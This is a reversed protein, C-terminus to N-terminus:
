DVHATSAVAEEQPTEELDRHTSEERVSEKKPTSTAIQVIWILAYAILLGYSWELFKSGTPVYSFYQSFSMGLLILGVWFWRRDQDSSALMPLIFLSHLYYNAPYFLIPILMMGLLAAQHLEQRRAGVFVALIGLTMGLWLLPQRAELLVSRKEIWNGGRVDGEGHTLITRLGVHNFNPKSAHATIKTSWDHWGDEFGYIATSAAGLLLAAGLAGAAARWLPQHFTFFESLGVSRKHVFRREIFWWIAPAPIALLVLLPFARIMTSWGLLFGGLTWRQTRLACVGLGMLIMWDNRLTSGGWNSGHMPMSNTGFVVLCLFATPLGFTRAAVVLFLVLLIPDLLGTLVLTLRNASAGSFMLSAPMMWVPTANAGHDNLSGIYGDGMTDRFYTMDSKFEEWREPSFRKKVDAIQAVSQGLTTMQYDRLDRIARREIAAFTAPDGDELYALASAWYVGDYGLEDFYKVTPFYVRMDYTHVFTTTRNKNDFFQPHGLNFFCLVGLAAAVGLASTQVRRDTHARLWGLRIVAAAAVLAVQAKLFAVNLHGVPWHGAVQNIAYFSIGCAVALEAIRVPRPWSPRDILLTTAILVGWWFFAWRVPREVIRARDRIAERRISPPWQAPVDEFLQLESVSYRSDGGAASLRVFRTELLLDRAQRAQLGSRPSSPVEWLPFFNEGDLSGAVNFQDNNDGQLYAARIDVARGIDYVVFASSSSWLAAVQSDWADGPRGETGDTLREM